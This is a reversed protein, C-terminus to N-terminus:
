DLTTSAPKGGQTWYLTSGGLALSRPDIDPGSALVRSGSQDVAHVEYNRIFNVPEPPVIVGRELFLNIWAVSGDAKLVIATTGGNGVEGPEPTRPTGTPLNHLVRGTRLDRVIVRHREPRNERGSFWSEYVVMHGVLAVEDVGGGGAASGGPPPGLPYVHPHSSGFLCAVIAEPEFGGRPGSGERRVYAKAEADRKCAASRSTDRLRGVSQGADPWGSDRGGGSAGDLPHRDDSAYVDLADKPEYRRGTRRATASM